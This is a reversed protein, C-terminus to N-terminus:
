LWFYKQVFEVVDGFLYYGLSRTGCNIKAQVEAGIRLNDALEKRDVTVFVQIVSTSSAESANSRTAIKELFGYFSSPTDTALVFEVELRKTGLKKQARLIHGMRHEEVELELRWPGTGDKIELLVEGRNVPRDLLRQTLQFTAIKGDIPSKVNTRLYRTELIEVLEESARIKIKAKEVETDLRAQNERDSKRSAEEQQVELAILLEREGDREGKAVTLQEDLEENRLKMLPQDKTVDDNSDVKLEEVTANWPAFVEIQNVPMLQGEGEVTYDKPVFVLSLIVTILAALVVTTKLLNRGELWRLQRGLFQWLPMLFLRRHAKANTLAAAVHDRILEVRDELGSKPQSESVQEVILGGIPVRKKEKPRAAQKDDQTDILPETEFMPAVMVMRSGSEQVYDALPREVQPALQQSKGSYVLPERMAIVKSAMAEMMVVLNARRNVSDQGSISKVVTKKGYQVAISLRDCDILLRGDNAATAAVERVDLSRHLQLVFREFKDALESSPLASKVESQQDLYRCAYGCMQEIFQLFGPRAQQPTDTRQFIEVVGVCRKQRQVAALVLLDDTPLETNSRDGPSYTCAKGNSLVDSMLRRNRLEADPNDFYGTNHLGQECLLELQNSGNVMWVAGARAGVAAVVRKLFEGFFMEARVNSHSLEEIERALQIIRDRVNHIDDSGPM